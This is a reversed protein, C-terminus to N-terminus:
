DQQKQEAMAKLDDMPLRGAMVGVEAHVEKPDVEGLDPLRYDGGYLYMIVMKWAVVSCDRVVWTVDVKRVESQKDSSRTGVRGLEVEDKAVLLMPCKLELVGRHVYCKKVKCSFEGKLKVM